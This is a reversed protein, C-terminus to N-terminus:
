NQGDARRIRTVFTLGSGRRGEIRVNGGTNQVCEDRVIARASMTTARAVSAIAERKSQRM